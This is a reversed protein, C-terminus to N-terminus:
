IIKCMVVTASKFRDSFPVRKNVDVILLKVLLNEVSKSTYEPTKDVRGKQYSNLSYVRGDSIIEFCMCVWCQWEKQDPTVNGIEETYEAVVTALEGKVITVHAKRPQPERAQLFRSEEETFDRDGM